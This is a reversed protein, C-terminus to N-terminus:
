TKDSKIIPTKSTKLVKLLGANADNAFSPMGLVNSLQNYVSLYQLGKDTTQYTGNERSLLDRKILENLYINTQTYSLNAKYMIHTKHRPILSEELMRAM